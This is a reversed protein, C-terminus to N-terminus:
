RPQKKTQFRYKKLLWVELNNVSYFKPTFSLECFFNKAFALIDKEQCAKAM